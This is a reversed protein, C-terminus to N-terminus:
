EGKKQKILEPNEYINGIVEVQEAYKPNLRDWTPDAGIGVRPKRPGTIGFGADNYPGGFVVAMIEKEHPSNIDVKVVDGEYIERGNKDKLGTFQLWKIETTKEIGDDGLDVTEDFLVFAHPYDSMLEYGSFFPMLDHIEDEGLFRKENVAWARFKIERM